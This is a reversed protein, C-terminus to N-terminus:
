HDFDLLFFSLDSLIFFLKLGNFLNKVFLTKNKHSYILITETLTKKNCLRNIM